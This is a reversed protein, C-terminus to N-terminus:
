TKYYGRQALLDTVERAATAMADAVPMQGVIAQVMRKTALEAVENFEPLAPLPEAADLARAVAPYWRLRAQVAPDHLVARRPPVCLAAAERQNQEALAAAALRFLMDRDRATRRNIAYADTTMAQRGGPPVTWQIRGAVRSTGPNDMAACRTAWQQGCAALDQAFNVTNEDNSQSTYGPVAFRALRRYLAIAATDRADAFRPHWAEDFWGDGVTNLVSQLEYPPMDWKLSITTGSRRPTNLVQAAAVAAEWTAPPAIQRAEFLDARYAYLLVNTTIPLAYLRGQWSCGRLSAPNIDDLAFEERHKAWMEDLPELWGSKAFSTVTTSNVWLLDPTTAGSSLALRAMQAAEGSPMLRADVAVGPLATTLKRAYFELAPYRHSLLQVPEEARIARTLAPTMLTAATAAGLLPRRGFPRGIM